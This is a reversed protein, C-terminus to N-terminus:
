QHTKRATKKALQRAARGWSRKENNQKNITEIGFSARRKTAQYTGQNSCGDWGVGVGGDKRDHMGVWATALRKVEGAAWTSNGATTIYGDRRPSSSRPTATLFFFMVVGRPGQLSCAVQRVACPKGETWDSARYEHSQRQAM